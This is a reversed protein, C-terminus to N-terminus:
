TRVSSWRAGAAPVRPTAMAGEASPAAPTIQFVPYQDAIREFEELPAHRDVPLQPRAGPAVEPYRRLIPAREGPEIEHLRVRAGPRSRTQASRCWRTGPRWCCIWWDAMRSEPSGSAAKCPTGVAIFSKPSVAETWRQSALDPWTVHNEAGVPENEDELWSEPAEPSGEALLKEYLDDPEGSDAIM